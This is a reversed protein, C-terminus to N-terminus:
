TTRGEAEAEDTNRNYRNRYGVDRHKPIFWVLVLAGVAVAAIVLMATVIGYNDGVKGIIPACIGGMSVTLGFLVGSATGMRSPMFNQGTVMLASHAGSLAISILIILATGLAPSRCLAFAFILPALAVCSIRYLLRYGYIDAIRGGVLTAVIGAAAYISLQISGRAETAFFVAVWFLPIFMNLLSGVISRFLVVVAVTAFGKVNDVKKGEERVRGAASLRHERELAKFAKLHPLMILSGVIAPVFYVATGRLGFLGVFVTILIPGGTFGINGGVSFISMSMGKRDGAVINALKSGEPHFLSTGVGMLVCCVCTLAYSPAWGILAFGSCALLMGAIVFWPKESRDGILGFLPQTVASIVNGFLLLGGAAAYSYHHEAILFPLLAALSGQALDTTAHGVM